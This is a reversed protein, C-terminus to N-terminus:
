EVGLVWMTVFTMKRTVVLAKAAEERLSLELRCYLATVITVSYVREWPKKTKCRPTQVKSRKM